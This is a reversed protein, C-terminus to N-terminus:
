LEDDEVAERQIRSSIGSKFTELMDEGKKQEFQATTKVSGSKTETNGLWRVLKDKKWEGNRKTHGVLNTEFGMGHKLNNLWEGTYQKSGPM